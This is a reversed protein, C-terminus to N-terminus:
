GCNIVINHPGFHSTLSCSNNPFFATPTGWGDTNVSAAGNLVDAPVNTATRSWFWVKIFADTRELAYRPFFIYASERTVEQVYWGGGRSNFTPGYSSTDSVRVGCGANGTAAVDCNNGTSSRPVPPAPNLGSTLHPVLFLVSGTQSRSAPM